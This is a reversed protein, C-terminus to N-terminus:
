GDDTQRRFKERHSAPVCPEREGMFVARIRWVLLPTDL